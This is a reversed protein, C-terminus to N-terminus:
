KVTCCQSVPKQLRSPTHKSRPVPYIKICLQREIRDVFKYTLSLHLFMECSDGTLLLGDVRVCARVCRWAALVEDDRESDQQCLALCTLRAHHAPLRCTLHVSPTHLLILLTVILIITLAVPLATCSCLTRSNMHPLLLLTKHVCPSCMLLQSLLTTVYMTSSHPRPHSVATTFARAGGSSSLSSIVLSKM